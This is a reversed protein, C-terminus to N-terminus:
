RATSSSRAPGSRCPRSRSCAKRATATSWSSCSTRPRLGSHTPLSSNPSSSTTPILASFERRGQRDKTVTGLAHTCVVRIISKLEGTMAAASIAAGEAVATKPDCLDSGVLECDLAESVADRVAPIQSSGGIMLVGKLDGPDRGGSGDLVPGSVAGPGTRQAM